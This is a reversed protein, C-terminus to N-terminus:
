EFEEEGIYELLMDLYRRGHAPKPILCEAEMNNLFVERLNDASSAKTIIEVAEDPGAEELYKRVNAVREELNM